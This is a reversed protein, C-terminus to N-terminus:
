YNKNLNSDDGIYQYHDTDFLQIRPKKGSFPFRKINDSRLMKNRGPIQWQICKQDIYQLNTPINNCEFVNSQNEAISNKKAYYHTHILSYQLMSEYNAQIAFYGEKITFSPTYLFWEASFEFNRFNNAPQCASYVLTGSFCNSM